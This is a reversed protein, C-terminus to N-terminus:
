SIRMNAYESFIFFIEMFSIMVSYGGLWIRLCHAEEGSGAGLIGSIERNRANECLFGEGGNAGRKASVHLFPSWGWESSIRVGRRVTERGGRKSPAPLSASQPLKGRPLDGGAGFWISGAKTLRHAIASNPLPAVHPLKRTDTHQYSGWDGTHASTGVQQPM